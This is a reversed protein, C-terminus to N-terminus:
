TKRIKSLRYLVICIRNNYGYLLKYMNLLEKERAVFQAAEPLLALNLRVAFQKFNNGIGTLKMGELLM